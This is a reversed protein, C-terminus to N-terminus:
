KVHSHVVWSLVLEWEIFMFILIREVLGLGRNIPDVDTEDSNTPDSKLDHDNPGKKSFMVTAQIDAAITAVGSLKTNKRAEKVKGLGLIWYIVAVVVAVNFHALAAGRIWQDVDLPPQCAFVVMTIIALTFATGACFGHVNGVFRSTHIEGPTTTRQSFVGMGVTLVGALFTLWFMIRDPTNPSPNFHLISIALNFTAIAILFFAARMIVGYGRVDSYESVFKYVPDLNAAVLHLVIIFIAASGLLTICLNGTAVSPHGAESLSISFGVATLVSAVLFILLWWPAKKDDANEVQPDSAEKTDVTTAM